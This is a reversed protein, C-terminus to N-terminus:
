RASTYLPGAGQRVPSRGVTRLSNSIMEAQKQLSDLDLTSPETEPTISETPDNITEGLANFSSDPLSNFAPIGRHLNEEPERLPEVLPKVPPATRSRSVSRRATKPRSVPRSMQVNEVVQRPAEQPVSKMMEQQAQQAAYARNYLDRNEMRLMEIEQLQNENTQAQVPPRRTMPPAPEQRMTPEEKPFFFQEEKPVPKSGSPKKWIGGQKGMSKQDDPLSLIALLGVAIGILLFMLISMSYKVDNQAKGYIAEPFNKIENYASSLFGIAVVSFIVMFLIWIAFPMKGNNGNTALSYIVVVVTTLLMIVTASIAWYLSNVAKEHEFRPHKQLENIAKNM